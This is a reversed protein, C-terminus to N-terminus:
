FFGKKFLGGEKSFTPCDCDGAFDFPYVATGLDFDFSNFYGDYSSGLHTTRYGLGPRFEIRINKLRLHYEISAHFGDQSINQADLIDSKGSLYRLNLGIQSFCFCPLSTLLLFSCWRIMYSKVNLECTKTNLLRQPRYGRKIQFIKTGYDM